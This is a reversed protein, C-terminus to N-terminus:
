ATNPMKSFPIYHCKEIGQKGNRGRSHFGKRKFSGRPSPETSCGMAWESGGCAGWAEPPFASGQTMAGFWCHPQRGGPETGGNWKMAGDQNEGGSRAVGSIYCKAHNTTYASIDPVLNYSELFSPGDGCEEWRRGITHLILCSAWISKRFFSHHPFSHSLHFNIVTNQFTIM